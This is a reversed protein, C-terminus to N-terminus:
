RTTSLGSLYNTAVRDGAKLGSLIEVSDLTTHGTTIEVDRISGDAGLVQVMSRGRANHVASIPITLAEPNSYISVRMHASMGLRVTEELKDPLDRLRIIAEFTPVQGDTQAQSSLHAIQGKLSVGPFADGSVLVQQGVELNNVDLEDVKATISLGELSGVSLLAQGEQVNAGVEIEGTNGKKISIPRIAIGSVPARVHALAMKRELIEYKDKANELEMRAIECNERDGKRLVSDLGEQSSILDLKKDQYTHMSNEYETEPIIGQEFLVKNEEFTQKARQLRSQSQVLERRAKSVEPESDWQTIEKLHKRAKIYAARADRLQSQIETTDLTLLIEDRKVRQGYFFKKTKITAKFPATLAVEELPAVTGSLSISRSLPHPTVVVAPINTSVTTASSRGDSPSSAADVLSGSLNGVWFYGGLGLLILLAASVAMLRVRKGRHLINKLEKNSEDIQRVADKLQQNLRQQAQHLRQTETIDALVLVAGSLQGSGDRLHTASVSLSRPEGGEQPLELIRNRITKEEYITDLVVQMLDDNGGADNQSLAIEHFPSGVLGDPTKGFLEGAAPNCFAIRGTTDLTLVGDRMADLIAGAVFDEQGM